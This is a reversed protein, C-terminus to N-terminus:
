GTPDEIVITTKGREPAAGSGDALRLEFREPGEDVGDATIPVDVTQQLTGAPFRVVRAPETLDTGLDATRGRLLLRVSTDHGAEGDLAVTVHLTDGEAVHRDAPDVTLSAHPVPYGPHGHADLGDFCYGRSRAAAVIGPVAAVSAPSNRVGDHQLVVNDGRHLEALATSTIQGTSGGAWDRTDDTWLMAVDHEHHIAALVHADVAGYPPRVLDTPHVGANALAAATQEITGEVQGTTQRTMDQHLYSHNGILFGSREVLRAAAPAAAVRSGVMFFTAPVHLRTLTAVLRPTVTSSPGDDFTLAIHGASCPAPAARWVAHGQASASTAPSPLALAALVAAVLPLRRVRVPHAFRAGVAPRRATVYPGDQSSVESLHRGLTCLRM